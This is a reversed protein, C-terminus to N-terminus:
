FPLDDEEAGTPPATDENEKPEEIAEEGPHPPANSDKKGIMNMQEAVIETTYRDVGEKDKWKRTEIRGEVYVSAGKRLYKEVIEALKAWFVIRHWQTNEIKEGESNKYSRSTAVSITAVCTGAKTHRVEPDAGLNGLIIAKNVGSM